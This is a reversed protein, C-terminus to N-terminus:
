GEATRKKRGIGASATPEAADGAVEVREESVARRGTLWLFATSGVLLVLLAAVISVSAGYGARALFVSALACVAGGVWFVLLALWRGFRAAVLDYSHGRDGSAIRARSRVRRLVTFVLEAAFVLLATAAVLVGKWGHSMALVAALVALAVGVLYAGGDGLFVRAPPRNWVVFGALAGCLAGGLGVAWGGGLSTGAIGAAAIAGLGGALGDQGDMLNVANTTALVIAVVALAGLEGLPSIRFGGWVLLLGCMAQAVVRVWPPLSMADDAVGVALAVLMAGGVAATMELGPEAIVTAAMTAAAVALGGGLAVPEPHIKLEDGSPVDVLGMSRSLRAALPTLLVSLGFAILVPAYM